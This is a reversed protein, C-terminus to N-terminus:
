AQGNEASLLPLSRPPVAWQRPSPSLPVLVIPSSQLPIPTHIPQFPPPPSRDKVFDQSIDENGEGDVKALLLDPHPGMAAALADLEEKLEQSEHGGDYFAVFLPRHGGGVVKHFTYKDLDVVGKIAMSPDNPNGAGDGYDGYDGMGGMGYPDMDGYGEGGYAEDDYEDQAASPNESALVLLVVLLLWTSRCRMERMRVATKRIVPRQWHM